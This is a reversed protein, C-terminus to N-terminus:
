ESEASQNKTTLQQIIAQLYAKEQNLRAIEDILYQNVIEPDAKLEQKNQQNSEKTNQKNKEENMKDRRFKIRINYLM